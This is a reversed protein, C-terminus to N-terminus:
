WSGPPECKPCTLSIQDPHAGRPHLDPLYVPDSLDGITRLKSRSSSRNVARVSDTDGPTIAKPETDAYIEAINVYRDRQSLDRIIATEGSKTGDAEQLQM